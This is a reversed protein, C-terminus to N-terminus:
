DLGAIELQGRRAVRELKKLARSELQRIREKTVGFRRGVQELTQPESGESLGFRRTIVERERPDLHELIEMIVEHQQRNVKQELFPNGGEDSRSGFFEEHGTRFRDRQRHERPVSRAFNRMIAWTAYTSFKNGLLYNFKEIARILSLNGDSVMEFFNMGPRLHKKAISVVLRLNSRILFNKVAMSEELLAEVRDMRASVPRRGRLDKRAVSAQWRLFNMKRFHYQEQERTLVPLTYLSALYAPLGPPAKTVRAGPNEPAEGLIWEAAGQERFEDSDMFDIPQELLIEARIEAAVRYISNRTRSFRRALLDVSTGQRLMRYIERRDESSLVATVGFVAAEPHIRDHDRLTTRITEASRGMRKALQQSIQTPNSGRRALQRAAQVIEERERPKLQSFRSGRLVETAHRRAFRDLTSQLFGIRKRGNILFRRSVLGRNRWRDVTKTSVNYQTGVDEITLVAEGVDAVTLDLSDSLDEVFCRLDRITEEGSLVLDPYKDPRFGTIEECVDPYAYTRDAHLRDVFRETREIQELRVGRPAFRVQQGALQSLAPNRYRAM